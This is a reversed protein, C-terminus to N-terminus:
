MSGCCNQNMVYVLFCNGFGICLFQHCSCLLNRWVVYVPQRNRVWVDARQQVSMDMPARDMAVNTIFSCVGGRSCGEVVDSFINVCYYFKAALQIGYNRYTRSVAENVSLIKVRAQTINFNYYLSLLKISLADEFCCHHLKGACSFSTMYVGFLVKLHWMHCSSRVELTWSVGRRKWHFANCSLM